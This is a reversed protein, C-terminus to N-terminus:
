GSSENDIFPIHLASERPPEAATTVLTGDDLFSFGM